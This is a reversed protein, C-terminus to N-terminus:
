QKVPLYFERELSPEISERFVGRPSPKLRENQSNRFTLQLARAINSSTMLDDDFFSLITISQKQPETVVITAASFNPLLHIPMSLESVAISILL